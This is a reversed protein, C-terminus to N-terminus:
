APQSMLPPAMANQRDVFNVLSGLSFTAPDCGELDPQFAPRVSLYSFKDNLLLAAFTEAVITSGV